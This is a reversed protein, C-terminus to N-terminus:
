KGWRRARRHLWWRVEKPMPHERKLWRRITKPPRALCRSAFEGPTLGSRRIAEQLLEHDNM